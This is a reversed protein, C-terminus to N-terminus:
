PEPNPTAIVPAEIERVWATEKERKVLEYRVKVLLLWVYYLMFAAIMSLLPYLMSPVISPQSFKLITAGQHLTHWWDVSYHIIPINVVGLLTVVGSAKAALQREPIASRIAIIGIYIFLLILESTLRADWIWWTGWTPKGWISGTILTLLAFCAGIPASVKAVIDAVKIKWIFHVIVAATMAMYVGLSWIASPVHLYIIRYVNGQQYDSPALVLGGYLGYAFALLCFLAIWPQVMRAWRYTTKPSAAKHIFARGIM